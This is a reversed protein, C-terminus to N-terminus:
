GVFVLYRHDIKTVGFHSHFSNQGGPPESNRSGIRFFRAPGKQNAAQAGIGMKAPKTKVAKDKIIKM